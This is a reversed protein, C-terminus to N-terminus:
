ASTDQKRAPLLGLRASLMYAVGASAVAGIGLAIVIAGLVSFAPAIDQPVGNQVFELGFGLATLVVGAQVSWLIRGFPASVPSTDDAVVPTFELFRRGAPTQVYALLDENSQLRDLIKTHVDVQMRTQRVWRRYNVVERAVAGVVVIFTTFGILLAAGGLANELVDIPESRGRYFPTGFFYAPNRLVEPHEALFAALTPYPALYEPSRGLSPDAQLVSHVNPPLQQLLQQLRQRTTEADQTAPGGSGGPAV